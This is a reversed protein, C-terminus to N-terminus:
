VNENEEKKVPTAPSSLTTASEYLYRAKIVNKQEDFGLIEFQSNRPLLFEQEQWHKRDINFLADMDIYKCGKPLEIELIPNFRKFRKATDLKKTTSSYSKETYIGGKRFLNALQESSLEDPLARYVITPSDIEFSKTDDKFLNDLQKIWNQIEETTQIGVFRGKRLTKHFCDPYYKYEFLADMDKEDFYKKLQGTKSYIYVMGRGNIGGRELAYIEQLFGDKDKKCVAKIDDRCLDPVEQFPRGITYYKGGSHLGVKMGRPEFIKNILTINETSTEPTKLEFNNQLLVQAKGLNGLCNESSVYDQNKGAFTPTKAKKLIRNQKFVINNDTSKIEM